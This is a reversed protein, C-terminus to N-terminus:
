NDPFACITITSGYVHARSAMMTTHAYDGVPERILRHDVDLWVVADDDGLSLLAERLVGVTLSQEQSGNFNLANRLESATTNEM